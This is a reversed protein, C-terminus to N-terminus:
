LPPFGWFWSVVFAHWILTNYQEGTITLVTDVVANFAPFLSHLENLGGGKVIFDFKFNEVTRSQLLEQPLFVIGYIVTNM